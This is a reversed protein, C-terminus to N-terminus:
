KNHVYRFWYTWYWDNLFLFQIEINKKESATTVAVIIIYFVYAIRKLLPSSQISTQKMDTWDFSPLFFSLYSNPWVFSFSIIFLLLLVCIFSYYLVFIFPHQNEGSLQIKPPQVHTIWIVVLSSHFEILHIQFQQCFAM